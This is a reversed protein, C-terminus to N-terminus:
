QVTFSWSFLDITNGDPDQVGDIIATYSGSTLPAAPTFIASPGAASYAVEGAVPNELADKLLFTTGNVSSAVVAQSFTAKLVAGPLVDSADTAPETAAVAPLVTIRTWASADTKGEQSATVTIITDREKLVDINLLWSSEVPTVTKPEEEPDVSAAVTAGAAVMGTLDLSTGSIPITPKTITFPSVANVRVITLSTTQTDEAAADQATIAVTNNDAVLGGIKLPFPADGSEPVPLPNGNLTVSTILAGPALRGYVTTFDQATVTDAQDIKLIDYALIFQLSNSNGQADDATVTVLNSGVKLDTIECSWAGNENSIEGVKADTSVFVDLGAGDEVMGSLTRQNTFTSPAVADMTLTPATLDEDTDSGCASLLALGMIALVLKKHGAMKMRQMEQAFLRCLVGTIPHQRYISGGLAIHYWHRGWGALDNMWRKNCKDDARLM